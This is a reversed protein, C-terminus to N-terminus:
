VREDADSKEIPEHDVIPKFRNPNIDVERRFPEVDAGLNINIVFRETAEATSEVGDGGVAQQRIEKAAEIRHRAPSKNDTMIANMATPAKAYYECAAERAAAGSRIRSKRTDRIAKILAPNKDIQAWNEPSIEYMEQLVADTILGEGARTCDIVFQHGEHGDLAVPKGHLIVTDSTIAPVAPAWESIIRDAEAKAKDANIYPGRKKLKRGGMTVEVFHKGDIEIPEVSIAIMTTRAPMTRRTYGGRSFFTYIPKEAVGATGEPPWSVKGAPKIMGIIKDRTKHSLKWGFGHVTDFEIGHARLKKRLTGIIANV